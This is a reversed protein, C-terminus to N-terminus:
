DQAAPFAASAECGGGDRNSISISGGHRTVIEKCLSLGLGSGSARPAAASRYFREFIHHLDREPIGPGSDAVRFVVRGDVDRVSIAVSGREPTFKLANDILNTVVRRLHTGIGNVVASQDIDLSLAINKDTAIPEFDAAVEGVMAGFAVPEAKEVVEADLRALMLLDDAIRSLGLAERQASELAARMEDPTRDHALTVDLGTRLVSLPTRLEHAADSAFRNQAMSATEIRALLSNIADTLRAVEDRSAPPSLRASLNRSGIAALRASIGVLPALARGAIWYGGAVCLVALAPLALVLSGRLGRVARDIDRTSVGDELYAPSGQITLPVVAFRGRGDASGFVGRSTFDAALTPGSNGADGFDAITARDTAIIVRRRPGIDTERSMALAIQAAAAASTAAMQSASTDAEEYLAADLARIQQASFLRVVAFAGIAIITSLVLAWYFTLRLRISM